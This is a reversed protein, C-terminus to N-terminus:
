QQRSAAATVDGRPASSIGASNVLSTDTTGFSRLTNTGANTRAANQEVLFHCRLDDKADTGDTQEHKASM